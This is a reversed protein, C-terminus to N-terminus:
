SFLDDVLNQIQERAKVTEELCPVFKGEEIRLISGVQASPSLLDKPVELMKGDARNECIAFDGEMRDFTFRDQATFHSLNKSDFREMYATIEKLLDQSFAKGLASVVNRPRFLSFDM